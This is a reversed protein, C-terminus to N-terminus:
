QLYVKWNGKMEVTQVFKTAYHRYMVFAAEQKEVWARDGILRGHAKLQM